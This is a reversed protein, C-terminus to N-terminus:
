KGALSQFSNNNNKSKKLQVSKHFDFNAPTVDQGAMNPSFELIGKFIRCKFGNDHMLFQTAKIGTGSSNKANANVMDDSMELKSEAEDISQTNMLRM